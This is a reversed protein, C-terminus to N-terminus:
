RGSSEMVVSLEGFIQRQAADGDFADEIEALAVAREELHVDGGVADIGHVVVANGAFRRGNVAYCEPRKIHRKGSLVACPGFGNETFISASSAHPRKVARTRRSMVMPSRAVPEGSGFHRCVEAQKFLFLDGVGDVSGVEDHSAMPWGVCANSRSLISPPMMTRRARLPSLSCSVRHRRVCGQDQLDRQRRGRLGRPRAPTMPPQSVIIVGSVFFTRTSAAHNSGIATRRVARRWPRCVSALWRKSRPASKLAPGTADAITLRMRSALPPLISPSSTSTRTEAHSARVALRRGM